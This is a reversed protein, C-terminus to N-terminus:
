PSAAAEAGAVDSPRTYVGGTLAFWLACALMVLAGILVATPPSFWSGFWGALVAAIPVGGISVTGLLGQVRGRYEDHVTMVLMSQSTALFLFYGLGFLVLCSCSLLLSRSRSFVVLAGSCALAGFSVVFARRADSRLEGALFAGVVAGVGTATTLVTLTHADGGLVSVAFLPMLPAHFVFTAVVANLGLLRRLARRAMAYRMGERLRTLFGEGPHAAPRTNAPRVLMWAVVVALFSIGNLTFAWDPGWRAIAFGGVSPGLVRMVNVATAGFTVAQHVEAAPVLAPLVANSAPNTFALGVGGLGALLLLSRIGIRDHAVLWAIVLPPLAMFLNGLMVTRRRDFRDAVVGTLPSLVLAPGFQAVFSMSVAFPWSTLQVLTWGIAVYQMWTGLNSVANGVQVLAYDRHRLVQLSRPLAVAVM